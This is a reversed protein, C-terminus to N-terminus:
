KKTAKRILDILLARDSILASAFDLAIYGLSTVLVLSLLDGHGTLAAVEPALTHGLGASIVTMTLRSTLPKDTSRLFVYLSASALALWWEVTKPMM